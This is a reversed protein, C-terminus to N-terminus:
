RRNIDSELRERYVNNVTNSGARRRHRVPEKKVDVTKDVISLQALKFM